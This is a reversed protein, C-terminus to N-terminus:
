PNKTHFLLSDELTNVEISRILAVDTCSSWPQIYLKQNRFDFNLKFKVTTIRGVFQRFVYDLCVDLSSFLAVLALLFLSILQWIKLKKLRFGPCCFVWTTEGRGAVRWEVPLMFASAVWIVLEHRM